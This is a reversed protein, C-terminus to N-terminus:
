RKSQSLSTWAKAGRGPLFLLQFEIPLARREPDASANLSGRDVLNTHISHLRQNSGRLTNPQQIQESSSITSSCEVHDQTKVTGIHQIFAATPKESEGSLTMAVYIDSLNKM